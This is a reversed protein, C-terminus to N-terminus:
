LNHGLRFDYIIEDYSCTYGAEACRNFKGIVAFDQDNGLLREAFGVGVISLAADGDGGLAPLVHCQMQFVSHGCAVAQNVSGSGPREDFFAGLANGLQDFPAGSEISLAALQEAGAFGGVGVGADQVGVSVGGACLDATREDGESTSM